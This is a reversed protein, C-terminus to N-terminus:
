AKVCTACQGYLVMSHGELLCGFPSSPNVLPLVQQEIYGASGTGRHEGEGQLRAEKRGVRTM